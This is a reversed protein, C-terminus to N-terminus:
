NVESIDEVFNKKRSTNVKPIRIEYLWKEERSYGLKGIFDYMQSYDGRVYADEPYAKEGLEVDSEWSRVYEEISELPIGWAEALMRARGVYALRLFEDDDYYSPRASFRDLLLNGCYLRYDWHSGEIISAILWPGVLMRGLDTFFFDEGKCSVLEATVVGNKASLRLTKAGEKVQEVRKVYIGLQKASEEVSAPVNKEKLDFPKYLRISYFLGM